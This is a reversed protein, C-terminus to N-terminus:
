RLPSLSNTSFGLCSESFPFIRKITIIRARPINPISPIKARPNQVTIGVRHTVIRDMANSAIKITNIPINNAFGEQFHHLISLVL